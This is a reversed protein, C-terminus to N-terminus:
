RHKQPEGRVLDRVDAPSPSPIGSAPFTPAYSAPPKPLRGSQAMEAARIDEWRKREKEAKARAEAAQARWTRLHADYEAKWEDSGDDTPASLMAVEPPPAPADIPKTRVARSANSPRKSPPLAFAQPFSEELIAEAKAITMASALASALAYSFDDAEDDAAPSRRSSITTTARAAHPHPRRRDPRQKADLSSTSAEGSHTYLYHM